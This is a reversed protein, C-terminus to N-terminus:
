ANDDDPIHFISESPENEFHPTSVAIPVLQRGQPVTFSYQRAKLRVGSIVRQRQDGAQVGNVTEDEMVTMDPIVGEVSVRRLREPQPSADFQYNTCDWEKRTFRITEEPTVTFYQRVTVPGHKDRADPAHTYDSTSPYKNIQPNIINLNDTLFDTVQKILIARQQLRINKIKEKINHSTNDDTIDENLNFIEGLQVPIGTRAGGMLNKLEELFLRIRVTHPNTQTLEKKLEDLVKKHEIIRAKVLRKEGQQTNTESLALTRTTFERFNNDIRNLVNTLDDKHSRELKFIFNSASAGSVTRRYRNTETSVRQNLRSSAPNRSRVTEPNETQKRLNNLRSTETQIPQFTAKASASQNTIPIM